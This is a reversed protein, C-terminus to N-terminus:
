SFRKKAQAYQINIEQLAATDGDMNDPHYLKVLSKYKRDASEKSNCGAFFNFSSLRESAESDYDESEYDEDDSEEDDYDEYYEDDDDYDDDYSDGYEDDYDEYDDEDDGYFEDVKNRASEEEDMDEFQRHHKRLWKEYNKEYHRKGKEPFVM